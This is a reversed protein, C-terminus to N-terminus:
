LFGQLDAAEGIATKLEANSIEEWCRVFGRDFCDRGRCAFCLQEFRKIRGYFLSNRVSIESRGAFPDARRSSVPASGAPSNGTLLVALRDCSLHVGM